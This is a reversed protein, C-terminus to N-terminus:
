AREQLLSRLWQRLLRSEEPFWLGVLCAVLCFLLLMGLLLGLLHLVVLLAVAIIALTLVWAGTWRLCSLARHLIREQLTEAGGPASEVNPM